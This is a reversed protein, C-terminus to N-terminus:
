FYLFLLPIISTWDLVLRSNWAPLATMVRWVSALMPTNPSPSLALPPLIGRIGANASQAGSGFPSFMWYGVDLM